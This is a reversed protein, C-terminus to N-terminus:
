DGEDLAVAAVAFGGHDQGDRGHDGPADFRGGQKLSLEARGLRARRDGGKIEGTLIFDGICGESAEDAGAAVCGAKGIAGLELVVHGEPLIFQAAGDRLGAAAEEDDVRQLREERFSGMEGVDGFHAGDEGHEGIQGFGGAHGDDEDAMQVLIFAALIDVAAEAANIDSGGDTGDEHDFHVPFIM